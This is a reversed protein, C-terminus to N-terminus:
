HMSPHQVGFLELDAVGTFRPKAAGVAYYKKPILQELWFPALKSAKDGMLRDYHAPEAEPKDTQGVKTSCRPM